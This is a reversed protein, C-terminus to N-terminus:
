NIKIIPYTWGRIRFTRLSEASDKGVMIGNKQNNEFHLDSKLRLDNVVLFWVRKGQERKELGVISFWVISSESM